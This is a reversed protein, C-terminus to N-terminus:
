AFCYTSDPFGACFPTTSRNKKTFESSAGAILLVCFAPNFLYSEEIPRSTWPQIM